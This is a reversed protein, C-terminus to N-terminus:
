LPGGPMPQSLESPSSSDRSLHSCPAAAWWPVLAKWSPVSCSTIYASFDRMHRANPILLSPFWPQVNSCQLFDRCSLCPSSALGCGLGPVLVNMLLSENEKPLVDHSQCRRSYPTPQRDDDLEQWLIPVAPEWSWMGWHFTLGRLGILFLVLSPVRGGAAVGGCPDLWCRLGEEEPFTTIHRHMVHTHACKAAPIKPYDTRRSGLDEECPLEVSAELVLTSFPCRWGRSGQLGPLHGISDGQCQASDETLPCSTQPFIIKLLQNAQKSTQQPTKNQKGKQM